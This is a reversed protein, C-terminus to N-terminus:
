AEKKALIQDAPAIYHLVGNLEIPQFTLQRHVWVTDGVQLDLIDGSKATNVKPGLAVVLCPRATTQMRNQPMVIGGIIQDEDLRRFLVKSGEPVFGSATPNLTRAFTTM